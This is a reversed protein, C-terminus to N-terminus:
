MQVNTCCLNDLIKTENQVIQELFDEGLRNKIREVAKGLEPARSTLDHCDSGLLHIKGQQLMRLARSATAARTFFHSNAQILVPLATLREVIRDAGFIPLYRDIHAIVPTLRQKRSIELLEEYVYDKWPPAPLEVLIYSSNGICLKKLVDSESMGRYYAVEAGAVLKPLDAQEEMAKRLHHLAEHRRQLFHEPTDRDAYFHPTLVVCGVHQAAESRLMSLSMETNKSGDDVHPLIHTHFDTIKCMTCSKSRAAATISAMIDAM